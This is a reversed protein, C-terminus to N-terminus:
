IADGASVRGASKKAMSQSHSKEELKSANLEASLRPFNAYIEKGREREVLRSRRPAGGWVCVRLLAATAAAALTM